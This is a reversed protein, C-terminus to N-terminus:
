PQPLTNTTFTHFPPTLNAKPKTGSVIVLADGLASHQSYPQLQLNLNASSGAKAQQPLYGTFSFVLMANADPVSFSYNGASDTTTGRRTGKLSISVGSLANGKDDTIKGSLTHQSQAFASPMFFLMGFVLTLLSAKFANKALM